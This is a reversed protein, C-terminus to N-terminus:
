FGVSIEVFWRLDETQMYLSKELGNILVKYKVTLISGANSSARREDLIREIKFRKGDQWEIELPKIKGEESIRVVVAVFVKRYSM